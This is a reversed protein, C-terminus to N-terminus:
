SPSSAGPETGGCMSAWTPIRVRRTQLGRALLQGERVETQVGGQGPRALMGAAHPDSCPQLMGLQITRAREASGTGPGPSLGYPGAPWVHHGASSTGTIGISYFHEAAAM